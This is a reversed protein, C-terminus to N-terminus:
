SLFLPPFLRLSLVFVGPLNFAFIQGANIALESNILGYRNYSIRAIQCEALLLENKLM